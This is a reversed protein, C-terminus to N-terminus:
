KKTAFGYGLLFMAIHTHKEHRHTHTELRDIQKNKPTPLSPVACIDMNRMKEIWEQIINVGM